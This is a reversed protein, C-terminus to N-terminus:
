EVLEGGRRAPLDRHLVHQLQEPGDLLLREEAEAVEHDVAVGGAREGIQLLERLASVVQAPEDEVQDLVQPLDHERLM